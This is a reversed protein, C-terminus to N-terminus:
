VDRENIFVARFLFPQKVVAASFGFVFDVAADGLIWNQRRMLRTLGNSRGYRNVFRVSVTFPINLRSIGVDIATALPM